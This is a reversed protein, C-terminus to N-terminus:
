RTVLQPTIKMELFAQNQDSNALSNALGSWMSDSASEAERQVYFTMTTKIDAHRMVLQLEHAPIRRAWRKGFSRRFDHASAYVTRDGDSVTVVKAAKGISAIQKSLHLSTYEFGFVKGTRKEAPIAQLLEMFDPSIPIVQDKGNKQGEGSFDIMPRRGTLDVRVPDYSEWSLQAAESIRLGSFWLGRMFLRYQEIEENRVVDPVKDLMREFEEATIARGKMGTCKPMEFTPMIKIYGQSKAWNLITRLGSLHKKITLNRLKKEIKLKMAFESVIATTIASPRDPSIFREIMNMTTILENITAQRRSKNNLGVVEFRERFDAWSIRESIFKGEEVDRELRAAFREADRKLKTGTSRTKKKGTTLDVWQCVYNTRGKPKFVTINM